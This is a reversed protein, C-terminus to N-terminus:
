SPARLLSSALRRLCSALRHSGMFRLSSTALGRVLRYSGVALRPIRVHRRGVLLARPGVMALSRAEGTGVPQGQRGEM